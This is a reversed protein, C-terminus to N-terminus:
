DSARHQGMDWVMHRMFVKEANVYTFVHGDTDEFWEHRNLADYMDDDVTAENRSNVLRIKRAM